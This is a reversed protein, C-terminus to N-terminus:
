HTVSLYNTIYEKYKNDMLEKEKMHQYAMVHSQKQLLEEKQKLYLESQSESPLTISESNRHQQFEQVSKFKPKKNYIDQVDLAFFPNSHTEKVDFSHLSQRGMSGIEEIKNSPTIIANKIAQNRSSELDNNDYIDEKSKLWDGHGNDQDQNVYVKEFMKNFEKSFKAFNKRPDIHNAELYDKFHTQVEIDQTLECEEKAHKSFNYIEEVKFYMKRFFLFYKVDVNSKDPHLCLVKKKAMKLDNKNFNARLCFLNLLDEYEYNKENLDIDM